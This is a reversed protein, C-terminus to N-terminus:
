GAKARVVAEAVSLAGMLIRNAEADSAPRAPTTRLALLDDQADPDPLPITGATGVAVLSHGCGALLRQLTDLTPQRRNAEIASINPQDLGSIEALASQTLGAALRARRVVTGYM